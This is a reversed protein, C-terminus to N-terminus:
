PYPSTLYDLGLPGVRKQKSPFVYKPDYPVEFKNLFAILEEQFSRQRHHEEQNLIYQIVDHDASKSMTFAAYGDQWGFRSDIEDRVFSTSNSKVTSALDAISITAPLSCYVHVHDSVGGIVFVKSKLNELIGRMHGHLRPQWANEILKARTQCHFWFSTSARAFSHCESGGIFLTPGEPRLFKNTVEKRPRVAVAVLLIPGDPWSLVQETIVACMRYADYSFM